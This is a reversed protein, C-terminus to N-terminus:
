DCFGANNRRNKKLETIDYFVGILNNKDISFNVSCFVTRDDINIEKKLNRKETLAQRFLMNIDSLLFVEWYYKDKEIPLQTFKKLSENFLLIRGDNDFM